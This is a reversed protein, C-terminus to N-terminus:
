YNDLFGMQPPQVFISSQIKKLIEDLNKLKLEQNEVLMNWISKRQRSNVPALVYPCNKLFDFFPQNKAMKPSIKDGLFGLSNGRKCNKANPSKEFHNNETKFNPKGPM